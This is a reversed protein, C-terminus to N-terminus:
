IVSTGCAHTPFPTTGDNITCTPGATLGGAVASLKDQTILRLTERSMQLKRVSKKIM